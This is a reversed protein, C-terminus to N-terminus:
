VGRTCISYKGSTKLNYEAIKSAVEKFMRNRTEVTGGGIHPTVIVNMSSNLKKVIETNVDIDICVYFNPNKNAKNLLADFDIIPLRSISIFIANDKMQGVLEKSIIGKTDSNNPLNVSIVDAIQVLEELSVFVIGKSRLESHNEPHATWCLVKMGFFVAYDMICTSVNGAGIVGIIKGSLDEPKSSLYKNNKGKMYLMAGESLRKCCLLAVGMTFEAISQANAMPTNFVEVLNRKEDPISIHDLGVSATAIVKPSTITQFMDARMKQSTGIIVCDYEEIIQQIQAEDPRALGKPHITLEVGANKLIASAEESFDDFISYARM